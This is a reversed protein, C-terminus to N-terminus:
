SNITIRHPEAVSIKIAIQVSIRILKNVNKKLKEYNSNQFYNTVLEEYFHQWLLGEIM